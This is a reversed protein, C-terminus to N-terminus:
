FRYALGFSYSLVQNTQLSHVKVYVPHAVSFSMTFRGGDPSFFVNPNIDIWKGGTNNVRVGDRTDWGAIRIGTVYMGIGVFAQSEPGFSAPIYSGGVGAFYANASDYGADNAGLTWLRGGNAVLNFKTFGEEAGFGKNLGVSLSPTWQGSGPVIYPKKWAGAADTEADSGTPLSLGPAVYFNWANPNPSRFWYRGGVSVDGFGHSTYYNNKYGEERANVSYPVNLSLTLRDTVGYEANVNLKNWLNKVGLTANSEEADIRILRDGFKYAYDM